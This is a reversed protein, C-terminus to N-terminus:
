LDCTRNDTGEGKRVGLMGETDLEYRAQEKMRQEEWKLTENADFRVNNRRKEMRPKGDWKCVVSACIMANPLMRASWGDAHVAGEAEQM